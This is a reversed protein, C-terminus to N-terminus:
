VQIGLERFMEVLTICRVQRVRCVDPIKPKNVRGPKEATVVPCGNEEALAVVFPDAVDRTSDPDVFGIHANVITEVRRQISEDSPIFLNTQTKAWRHLDDDKRSLEVLVMDPSMLTGDASLANIRALISPFVDPPYYRVWWDMLASTDIAYPM